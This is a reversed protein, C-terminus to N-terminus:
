GSAEGQPWGGATQVGLGTVWMAAAQAQGEDGVQDGDQAAMREFGSCSRQQSTPAATKPGHAGDKAATFPRCCVWETSFAAPFGARCQSNEFNTM